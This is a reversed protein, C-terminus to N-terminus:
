TRKGAYTPEFPVARACHHIDRVLVPDHHKFIAREEGSETVVDRVQDVFKKHEAKLEVEVPRGTTVAEELMDIIDCSDLQHGM